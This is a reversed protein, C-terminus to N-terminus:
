AFLSRKGAAGGVAQMLSKLGATGIVNSSLGLVKIKCNTDGLARALAVAGDNRCRNLRLQLRALQNGPTAMSGALDTCGSDSIENMGLDLDTVVWGSKIREALYSAGADKLQTNHLTLVTLQAQM